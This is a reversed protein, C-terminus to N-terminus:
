RVWWSPTAGLWRWNDGFKREKAKIGHHHTRAM